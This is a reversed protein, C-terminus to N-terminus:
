LLAKCGCEIKGGNSISLLKKFLASCRGASCKTKERLKRILRMCQCDKNVVLAHWADSYMKINTLRKSRLKVGSRSEGGRCTRYYPHTECDYQIRSLDNRKLFIALCSNAWVLVLAPSLKELM